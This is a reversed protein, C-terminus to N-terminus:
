KKLLVTLLQCMDINDKVAMVERTSHMSFIACGIDVTPIGM